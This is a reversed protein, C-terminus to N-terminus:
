QHEADIGRLFELVEDKTRTRRMPPLRGLLRGRYSATALRTDLVAVVGRDDSSRILRGVGQALLMGARPLDVLAFAREGARERRAVSLPDDPRAFPLRDITVLSLSHGPVDVGQWYSTVAFLSADAEDRFREILRRRSLTDQILVTTTVRTRVSDAVRKMVSRNTFLALTRGGAATILDVLEDAIASEAGEHTRTPLHEPVYLLAHRPYDFPSPVRLEESLGELGIDHGLTEPITASTLIATVTGFLERRLRPGVDVLSLELDIERERESLWALEDPGLSRLRALDNALHV